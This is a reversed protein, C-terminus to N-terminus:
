PKFGRDPNSWLARQGPKKLLAKPFGCFMACVIMIWYLFPYWIIWIYTKWLHSEYRSDLFVGVAFQLLSSLVLISFINSTSVFHVPLLADAHGNSLAVVTALLVIVTTYVWLLSLGFELIGVIM